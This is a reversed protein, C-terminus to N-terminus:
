AVFSYNKLGKIIPSKKKKSFNKTMLILWKFHLTLHLLVLIVVALGFYNHWPQWDVKSIGLFEVTRGEGPVGSVFVFYLVLGTISVVIFCLVLLVDVLYNM